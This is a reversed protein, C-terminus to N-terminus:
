APGRIAATVIISLATPLGCVTAKLPVPRVDPGFAVKDGVLM